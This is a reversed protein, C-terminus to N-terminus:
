PTEETLTLQEAVHCGRPGTPFERIRLSEPWATPDGRKDPHGGMQKFFTAIHRMRCQAILDHAWQPDMPRCRPGSEGGIIAWDFARIPSHEFDAISVASLLPEFSVFRIAAPVWSLWMIREVQRQTEVSVGLWVNPYGGGWDPPLRDKILGPRKTLIQYTHQPTKRIIDWAEPRWPDADPHFWDSWSCTFVRRPETWKLPALFTTKTRRVKEPDNGYRGQERFMYCHACGPSVRTCGVWPNWTADTWEIGTQASM